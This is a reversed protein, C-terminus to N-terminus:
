GTAPWLYVLGVPELRHARVEYSERVRQPEERLETELRQLRISWHRRDAEMQKREEDGIGPLHLQNPDYGKVAKGIRARQDELLKALSRSEEEGRERLQKIAHERQTNARRELEPMMEQIDRAVHARIRPIASERPNRAKKLADELQALTTAEGTERLVRLPKSGRDAEPWIATVPIIEEHLRAAKPGYLAIRGLLIVRPQAGPGEIVCARNLGSQFGQSIFRSLLRRVLRHELHVQVVGPADRGDSLIPPSFAITRIPSRSRWEGIREGRKRKRTRLDDFM